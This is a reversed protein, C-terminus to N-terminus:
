ALAAATAPGVSHRAPLRAAPRGARPRPAPRTLVAVPLVLELQMAEECRPRYTLADALARGFRLALAVQRDEILRIMLRAARLPVGPTM